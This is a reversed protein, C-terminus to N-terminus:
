PVPVALGVPEQISGGLTQITPSAPVVGNVAIIEDLSGYTNDTVFVDGSGDVAVYAPFGFGGSLTRISYSSAAQLEYVSGTGPDAVVVNGSADLAIGDPCSLGNATSAITTITPPNSGGVGAIKKVNGDACDSVYLNGSADVAVATPQIGGGSGGAVQKIAPSPPISGNVAQLEDVTYNGQDVVFVNGSGDVAVSVPQQFGDSLVKASATGAPIEYVKENNTGAYLNGSKDIALGDVFLGSTLTGVCSTQTCGTPIALVNGSGNNQSVYVPVAVTFIGSGTAAGSAAGITASAILKGSYAITATDGSSLLERVPPDDSGSTAITTAGSTDGDTLTIPTAYTGVIHGGDADSATVTFATAGFPTGSTASPFAGFTLSAPVGDLSVAFLNAIAPKVALPIDSATSLLNAGPPIGGGAPAKDYANVSVTYNGVALAIQITCVLPAGSCGSAGQTLDVNQTFTSAGTFALTMGKTM